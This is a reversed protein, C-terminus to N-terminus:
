KKSIPLFKYVLSGLTSYSLLSPKYVPYSTPGFVPLKNSVIRTYQKYGAGDESDVSFSYSEMDEDSFPYQVKFSHTCYEVEMALMLLQKEFIDLGKGTKTWQDLVFSLPFLDWFNSMSPLLGASDLRILNPLISDIVPKTRITSRVVLYTGPYGPMLEDPVPMSFKGHVTNAKFAEGSLIRTRFDQAKASIDQADGITPAIGLNWILVSDTLIDLLKVLLTGKKGVHLPLAGVLKATDVPALLSTMEAIAEIHNSEAYSFHTEIADKSSLFALPLANNLAPLVAIAFHRFTGASQSTYRNETRSFGIKDTFQKTVPRSALTSWEDRVLSHANIGVSDWEGFVDPADSGYADRYAPISLYYASGPLAWLGHVYYWEYKFRAKVADSIPTLNGLVCSTPTKVFTYSVRIVFHNLYMKGSPEVKRV